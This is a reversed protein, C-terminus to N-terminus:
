TIDIRLGLLCLDPLIYRDRDDEATVIYAAHACRQFVVFGDQAVLAFFAVAALDRQVHRAASVPDGVAQREFRNAFAAAVQGHRRQIRVVHVLHAHGQRIRLTHADRDLRGLRCRCLRFLLVLPLAIGLLRLDFVIRLFVSSRIFVLASQRGIQEM